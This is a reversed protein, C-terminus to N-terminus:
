IKLVIVLEKEFNFLEKFICQYLKTM